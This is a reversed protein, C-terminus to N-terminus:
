DVIWPSVGIQVPEVLSVIGGSHSDDPYVFSEDGVQGAYINNTHVYEIGDM